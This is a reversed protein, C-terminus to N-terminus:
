SSAPGTSDQNHLVLWRGHDYTFSLGVVLPSVRDDVPVRYVTDFLVFATRCGEVHRSLETFSQSWGPDGFFGTIFAAVEAKGSLVGGNAFIVTADPHLLANFGATNRTQTTSVYARVATDFQRACRQDGHDPAPAAPAAIAPLGVGIGSVISIALAATRGAPLLNTMVGM